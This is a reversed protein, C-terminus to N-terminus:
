FYERYSVVPLQVKVSHYRFANDTTMRSWEKSASVALDATCLVHWTRKTTLLVPIAATPFAAISSKMLDVPPLPHFQPHFVANLHPCVSAMAGRSWDRSAGVVLKACPVTTFEQITIRRVRERAVLPVTLTINNMRDASSLHNQHFHLPHPHMPVSSLPVCSGDDNQYLGEKCFCGSICLQNCFIPPNRTLAKCTRSCSPICEYYQEDEDCIEPTPPTAPFFLLGM